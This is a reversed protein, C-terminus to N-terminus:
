LFASMRTLRCSCRWGYHKFPASISGENMMFQAFDIIMTTNLPLSFAINVYDNNDTGITKGSISAHNFTFSFKQWSTTLNATGVNVVVNASPSGGTGFSQTSTVDVTRPVDAKAYFSVTVTKGAFTRVGEIRQQLVRFTSASGAVTHNWRLFYLPEGPVDTQGLTFAQRSVSFTGITGNYDVRFRDATYAGSTPNSFSTNRQWYDFNANMISNLKSNVIQQVLTRAM